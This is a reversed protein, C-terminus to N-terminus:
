LLILSIWKKEQKRKATIHFRITLGSSFVSSSDQETDSNCSFLSFLYVLRIKSYCKDKERKYM